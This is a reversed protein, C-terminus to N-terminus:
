DKLRNVFISASDVEHVERDEVQQVFRGAEFPERVQEMRSPQCARTATGGLAEVDVAATAAGQDAVVAALAAAPHEVQEGAGVPLPRVVARGQDQHDEAPDSLPHGGRLEGTLQPDATLVQQLQPVRDLGAGQGVGVARRQWVVMGLGVLHIL